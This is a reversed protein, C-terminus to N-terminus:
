PRVVRPRTRLLAMVRTTTETLASYHPNPLSAARLFYVHVLTLANQNQAGAVRGAALHSFAQKTMESAVMEFDRTRSDRWSLHTGFGDHHHILNPYVDRLM